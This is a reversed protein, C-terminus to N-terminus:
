HYQVLFFSHGQNKVLGQNCNNSIKCVEQHYFCMSYCKLTRYKYLVTKNYTKYQFCLSINFINAVIFSKLDLRVMTLINCSEAVRIDHLRVSTNSIQTTSFRMLVQRFNKLSSKLSFSVSTKFLVWM